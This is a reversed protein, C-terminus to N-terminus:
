GLTAGPIGTLGDGVAVARGVIGTFDGLGGPEQATGATHAAVGEDFAVAHHFFHNRVAAAAAVDGEIDAGAGNGDAAERGGVHDHVDEIGAVPGGHEAAEVVAVIRLHDAVQRSAGVVHFYFEEAGAPLGEAVALLVNIHGAVHNDLGNYGSRLAVTSFAGALLLGVCRDLLVADLEAALVLECQYRVGGALEYFDEPFGAVVVVQLDNEEVLEALLDFCDFQIVSVGALLGNVNRAQLAAGVQHM